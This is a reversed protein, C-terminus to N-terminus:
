NELGAALSDDYFRCGCRGHEKVEYLALDARKYLGDTFGEESFAGGVSLSVVPLGDSPHTLTKNISEIKKLIAKEQKQSANTLIVSFEDGGIRAPSGMSQFNETLLNAVQKLVRDGMEHGFGDNVQKFKDVDVILLGVKGGEDHLKQRLSDFAGRNLLGTLADHEAQHRLADKQETNRAFMENCTMALCKCEYAGVVRLTRGAGIRRVFSWMPLIVLLLTFIFGVLTGAFHLGILVQHAKMAAKLNDYGGEMRRRSTSGLRELLQEIDDKIEQKSAQYGSGFVMNQAKKIMEESSLAADEKMLSVAQVEQPLFAPALGRAEAVLRMAYIEEEMLANSHDLAAHLAASTDQDLSYGELAAVANERSRTENAETFYREMYAPDMTVTYLRVQETLYDSGDLLLAGDQECSVYEEMMRYTDSFTKAFHNVTVTLLVYLICSVVIIVVNMRSIRIGRSPILRDAEAGKPKSNM